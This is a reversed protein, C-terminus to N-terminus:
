LDEAVWEMKESDYRLIRPKTDISDLTIDSLLDSHDSVLASEFRQFFPQHNRFEVVTFKQEIISPVVKILEDLKRTEFGGIKQMAIRYFSRDNQTFSLPISSFSSGAQVNALTLSGMPIGSKASVYDDSEFFTAGAFNLMKAVKNQEISYVAIEAEMKKGDRYFTIKISGSANDMANDLAYLSASIPKGNVAWIIDGAKLYQAAPAGAIIYDVVIAKNRANPFDKIYKDMLEKPFSRHKVAKDLSYLDCIVGIHNRIIPKNNKIADVVRKVYKGNLVLAFTGGGGYNLAIAQGKENMVPSGSSGGATNLNVVYSHQPMDGDIAYLSSIFGKHVSFEKGENNGIIFVQQDLKPEESSFLIEQASEPMDASNVKLVAQDQWIDYYALKAEAQQGTDFTVFYSGISGRGVVHTNTIIIGNKKDAVFGTGMWSGLRAYASVSVRAEITVIAKKTKSLVDPSIEAFAFNSFFGSIILVIKIFRIFTPM